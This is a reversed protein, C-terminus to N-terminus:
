QAVGTADEGGGVSVRPTAMRWLEACINENKNWLYLTEASTILATYHERLAIGNRSTLRAFRVLFFGFISSITGKLSKRTINM